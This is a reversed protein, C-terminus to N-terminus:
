KPCPGWLLGTAQQYLLIRPLGYGSCPVLLTTFSFQFSGDALRIPNTLIPPTPVAVSVNVVVGTGPIGNVFATALAYGPPFDWVPM